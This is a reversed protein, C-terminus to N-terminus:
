QASDKKLRKTAEEPTEKKINALMHLNYIQQNVYTIYGNRALLGTQMPDSMLTSSDYGLFLQDRDPNDLLELAKQVLEIRLEHSKVIQYVTPETAGRIDRDIGMWADSVVGLPADKSLSPNFFTKLVNKAGAPIEKIAQKEQETLDLGLFLSRVIKLLAENDRFVQQVIEQTEETTLKQLQNGASDSM